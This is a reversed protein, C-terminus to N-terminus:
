GSVEFQVRHEIRSLSRLGNEFGSFDECYGTKERVDVSIDQLDKNFFGTGFHHFAVPCWYEDCNALGPCGVCGVEAHNTYASHFAIDLACGM